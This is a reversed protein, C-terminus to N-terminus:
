TAPGIGAISASSPRRLRTHIARVIVSTITASLATNQILVAVAVTQMAGLVPALLLTACFAALGIGGGVIWWHERHFAAVAMGFPAAICTVIASAFLPVAIGAPISLTKWHLIGLVIIGVVALPIYVLAFLASLKANQRIVGIVQPMDDAAVAKILRPAFAIALGHLFVSIASSLKRVVEFTAVRQPLGLWTLALTPLNETAASVMGSVLFTRSEVWLTRLHYPRVTALGSAIRGGRVLISALAPLLYCTGMITTIAPWLLPLHLLAAAAFAITVLFPPLIYFFLVSLIQQETAVQRVEELRCITLAFVVFLFLAASVPTVVRALLLITLIPVLLAMFVLVIHSAAVQPREPLLLARMYGQSAYQALPGVVLLGMAFVSAGLGYQRSDLAVAAALPPFFGIGGAILRVFLLWSLKM